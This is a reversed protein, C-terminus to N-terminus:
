TMARFSFVGGGSTSVCENDVQYVNRLQDSLDVLNINYYYYYNVNWHLCHADRVMKTDPDYVQWTKQVWKITICYTSLIHAHNKDYISLDVFSPFNQFDDLM